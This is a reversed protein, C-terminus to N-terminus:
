SNTRLRKDYRELFLNYEDPSDFDETWDDINILKEGVIHRDMLSDPLGIMAKYHEWGGCRKIIGRGYLDRIRRLAAKHDAIQHNYFSQCFCEGYGKGTLRSGYPRAYLLWDTRPSEVIEKICDESFFVDGYFVLTRGSKNWLEESSLFKDADFNDPNLTPKFLISGDIQYEDSNAVVYIAEVGYKRLLRVLRFVIPEGDVEAFHKAKGGYDGWRTGEGAAIIIARTCEM